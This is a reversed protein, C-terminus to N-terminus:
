QSQILYFQQPAAPSAFNTLMFNGGTDFQNTLLITWNTLPVGLNTSTLVYYNVSAVGNSGSMSLGAPSISISSIVPKGNVVVTLVGSSNLANTDWRLGAPLSPLVLAFSGSNGAADLLKFSDGATFAAVGINTVNLTGGKNLTGTVKIASNTLPSHQVKMFTASGAALTLNNSITLTGLPSGPVIAGGSNV